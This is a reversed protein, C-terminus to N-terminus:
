LILIFAVVFSFFLLLLVLWCCLCQEVKPAVGAANTTPRAKGRRRPVNSKSSFLIVYLFCLFGHKICVVRTLKRQTRSAVCRTISGRPTIIDGSLELTSSQDNSKTQVSPAVIYITRHNVLNTACFVFDFVTNNSPKSALQTVTFYANPNIKLIDHKVEILLEAPKIKRIALFFIAWMILFFISGVCGCMISVNFVNKNGADGNKKPIFTNLVFSEAPVGVKKAIQKCIDLVFFRFM